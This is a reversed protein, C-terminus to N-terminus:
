TLGRLFVFSLQTNLKGNQKLGHCSTPVVADQDPVGNFAPSLGAAACKCVAAEVVSSRLCSLGGIAEHIKM